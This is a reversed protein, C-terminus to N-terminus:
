GLKLLPLGVRARYAAPARFRSAIGLVPIRPEHSSLRRNTWWNEWGRNQLWDTADVHGRQRRYETRQGMRYAGAKRATANYEGDERHGWNVKTLKDFERRTM